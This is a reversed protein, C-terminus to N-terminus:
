LRRALTAPGLSLPSTLRSLQTPIHPVQGVANAKLVLTDSPEHLSFVVGTIMDPAGKLQLSIERGSWAAATPGAMERDGTPPRSRLNVRSPYFSKQPPENPFEVPPSPCLRRRTRLDSAGSVAPSDQPSGSIKTSRNFDCCWSGAQIRDLVSTFYKSVRSEAGESGGGDSEVAGAELGHPWCLLLCRNMGPRKSREASFDGRKM